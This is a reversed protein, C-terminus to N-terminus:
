KNGGGKKGQQQKVHKRQMILNANRENVMVTLTKLEAAQMATKAAEKERFRRQQDEMRTEMVVRLDSLQKEEIKEQRVEARKMKHEARYIKSVLNKKYLKDMRESEDHDAQRVRAVREERRAAAAARERERAERELPQLADYRPVVGHQKCDFYFPTLMDVFREEWADGLRGMVAELFDQLSSKGAYHLQGTEEWEEKAAPYFAGQEMAWDVAEADRYGSWLTMYQDRLEWNSCWKAPLQSFPNRSLNLKKLQPVINAFECPLATLRNNYVDFEILAPM